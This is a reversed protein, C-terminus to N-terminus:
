RCSEWLRSVKGCEIYATFTAQIRLGRNEITQSALEIKIDEPADSGVNRTHQLAMERTRTPLRGRTSTRVHTPVLTQAPTRDSPRSMVPCKDFQNHLMTMILVRSMYSIVRHRRRKRKNTIHLPSRSPFWAANSSSNLKPDHADCIQRRM